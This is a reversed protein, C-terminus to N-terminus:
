RRGINQSYYIPIGKELDVFKYTDYNLEKYDVPFCRTCFFDNEKLRKIVETVAGPVTYGLRFAEKKAKLGLKCEKKEIISQIDRLKYQPKPHSM